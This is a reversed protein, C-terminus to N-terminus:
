HMEIITLVYSSKKLETMHGGRQVRAVSQSAVKRLPKHTHTPPPTARALDSRQEAKLKSLNKKPPARLHSRKLGVIM